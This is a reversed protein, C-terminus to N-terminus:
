PVISTACSDDADALLTTSAFQFIHEGTVFPAPHFPAPSQCWVAYGLVMAVEHTRPGAIM